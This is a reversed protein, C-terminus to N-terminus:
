AGDADVSVWGGGVAAVGGAEAEGGFVGGVRGACSWVVAVVYGEAVPVADDVLGCCAGVYIDIEAVVSEPLRLNFHEAVRSALRRQKRKRRRLRHDPIM